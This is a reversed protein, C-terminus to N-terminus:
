AICNPLLDAKSVYSSTDVSKARKRNEWDDSVSINLTEQFKSTSANVGKERGWGQM